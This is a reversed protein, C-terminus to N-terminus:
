NLTESLQDTVIKKRESINGSLIIFSCHIEKLKSQYREFLRERDFPNERLPDFEWPFDPKCLFIHDFSSLHNLDYGAEVLSSDFKEELWIEFVLLSTDAIILDFGSQSIDKEMMLQAKLMHLVDDKNYGKRGELFYRAYEPVLQGNFHRTCWRALSTKGSSEPGTFLIKCKEETPNKVQNESM